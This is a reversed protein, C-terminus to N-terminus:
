YSKDSMRPAFWYALRPPLSTAHSWLMAQSGACENRKRPRSKLNDACRLSFVEILAINSKSRYSVDQPRRVRVLITRRRFSDICDVFKFTNAM